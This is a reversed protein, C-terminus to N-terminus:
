KRPTRALQEYLELTQSLMNRLPYFDEDPVPIPQQL